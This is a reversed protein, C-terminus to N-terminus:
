AAYPVITVKSCGVLHWHRNQPLKRMVLTKHGPGNCDVIGNGYVLAVHDAGAGTWIHNFGHSSYIWDAGAGGHLRDVQTTPQGSPNADGWIVDGENGAYITDNGNGGLLENHVGDLGRLVGSENHPHGALHGIPPWGAHSAEGASSPSDIVIPCATALAGLLGALALQWGRTHIQATTMDTDM